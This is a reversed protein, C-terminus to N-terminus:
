QSEIDKIKKNIIKEADSIDKKIESMHKREATNSKENGYETVDDRLIDFSKHIVEEAEHLKNKDTLEGSRKWFHSYVRLLLYLISILLLAIILWIEWSIDSIISGIKVIITNSAESNTKDEKIMVASATYSGYKLSNPILINFSGDTDAVGLIFVKVGNEAVFTILAQASPYDSTGLVAPAGYKTGFIIEPAKLTPAPQLIEPLPISIPQPVPVPKPTTVAPAADKVSFNAGILNGTIDTGQGDNALIQGSKFSVQGSGAKISRLNVTIVTGSFVASGGLVVGEFKVTGVSKSIVPESVWFSLVSNSKSV